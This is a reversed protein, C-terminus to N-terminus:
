FARVARVLYIGDKDPYGQSGSDFGQLWARLSFYESSSWYYDDAFGGLGQQHLNEYMLALEDKSPLFWDDYGGVILGDCLQAAKGTEGLGSLATVIAATNEYGTGVATLEPPSSADDGGIDTEYSGYEIGSWETSAPAAELYRVGVVDDVGDAADDFFIRGGGPGKDGVAYVNVDQYLIQWATGDYIYSTRDTTNYYAWNLSPDSPHSDFAGQWLISIGDEGQEGTLDIKVYETGNSYYFEEDEIVYYLFGVNDDNSDPLDSFSNIIRANSFDTM